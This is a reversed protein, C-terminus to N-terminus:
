VYADRYVQQANQACTDWSGAGTYDRINYFVRQSDYFTTGLKQDPTLSTNAFVACFTQGYTTMNSQWLALQPVSSAAAYPQLSLASPPAMVTMPYNVSHTVTGATVSITLTVPGVPTTSLTDVRIATSTPLSWIQNTGCCSQAIDPFSVSAGN